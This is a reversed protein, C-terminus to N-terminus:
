LPLFMKIEGVFSDKYKIAGPIIGATQFGIKKYLACAQTNNEFCSLELQTLGLDRAEEILSKFLETGIGEGRIAKALSIGVTGM